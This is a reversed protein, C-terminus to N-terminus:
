TTIMGAKALLYGLHYIRRLNHKLHEDPELNVLSEWEKVKSPLLLDRWPEASGTETKLYDDVVSSTVGGWFRRQALWKTSLRADPVLHRIRAFPTYLMKGGRSVIVENVSGEGSLLLNGKRGLSEPFGGAALLPAVRYGLNCEVLWQKGKIFHYDDSYYLGCSYSQLLDDDLWVPRESEFIPESEGGIIVAEPFREFAEIFKEAWDPYPVADDDLFIVAPASAAAVGANRARSLGQVEEFVYKVNTSKGAFAAVTAATGDTSNNDVVIVELRAPDVSQAAIGEICKGLLEHRNYTCVIVSIEPTM